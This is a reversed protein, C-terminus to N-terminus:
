FINIQLLRIHDAKGAIDPIDGKDPLQHRIKLFDKWLHLKPCSARLYGVIRHFKQFLIRHKKSHHHSFSLFGEM